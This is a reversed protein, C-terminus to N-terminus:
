FSTILKAVYRKILTSDRIDVNGDNNVDALILQEKDLTVIKAVYRQILTADRIDIDGNRDVDGRRFVSIETPEETVTETPKETVPETPKETVPETPKETPEETVPETPKETSEETAPETPAETEPEAPKVVSIVGNEVKFEVPNLDKDYIDFNDYDYSVTVPYAEGERATQTAKFTLTVIEGNATYDTLATDNVWALTYPSVLEPKHTHFGLVGADRVDTLELAESDFAVKLTASILGPNNKLSVTIDVTEGPKVEGSSVVIRADQEAYVPMSALILCLLFVSLLVSIVKLNKRKKM